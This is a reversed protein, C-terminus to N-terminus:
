RRSRLQIALPPAFPPLPSWRGSRAGNGASSPVGDDGVSLWCHATARGFRGPSPVPLARGPFRLPWRGGSSPRGPFWRRGDDATAPCDTSTVPPIPAHFLPCRGPRRHLQAITNCCLLTTLCCLVSHRQRVWRYVDCQILMHWYSHNECLSGALQNQILSIIPLCSTMWLVLLIYYISIGASSSRSVAVAIFIQHFKYMKNKQCM